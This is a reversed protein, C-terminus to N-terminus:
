QSPLGTLQQRARLLGHPVYRYTNYWLKLLIVKSVPKKKGGKPAAYPDKKVQPAALAVDKKESAFPDTKEDAPFTLPKKDVPYVKDLTGKEAEDYAPAAGRPSPESSM